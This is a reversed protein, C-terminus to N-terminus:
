SMDACLVHMQMNIGPRNTFTENTKCKKKLNITGRKKIITENFIYKHGNIGKV